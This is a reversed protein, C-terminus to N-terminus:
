RRRGGGGRMGGGGRSAGSPRYTSGSTRSGGSGQYSGYDRTRQSGQTRAAADRDLQSTTASGARDGARQQAADRQAQTPQPRDANNWNGNDYKQWSDGDKRYVNGDRGAYVDGGDTRVATGGGQGPGRRSVAAGGDDTRTVRTTNGTYRNTVRSTKAWDDGRQVATSGWSGYV